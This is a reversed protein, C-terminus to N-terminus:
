FKCLFSIRWYSRQAQKKGHLLLIENRRAFNAELIEARVVDRTQLLVLCLLFRALEGLANALQLFQEVGVRAMGHQQEELSEIRTPLVSRDPSDQLLHIGRADFCSVELDRGVLLAGVIKQPTHVLGHGAVSADADKVTRM